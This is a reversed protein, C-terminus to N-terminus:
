AVLKLKVYAMMLFKQKKLIKMKFFPNVVLYTEKINSKSTKNKFIKTLTHLKNLSPCIV